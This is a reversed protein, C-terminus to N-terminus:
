AVVKAETSAETEDEDDLGDILADIDIEGVQKDKRNQNLTAVSIPRYPWLACTKESQCSQVQERWTGAAKPDYICDRCKENIAKTRSM